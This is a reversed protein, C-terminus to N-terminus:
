RVPTVIAGYGGHVVAVLATAGAPAASHFLTDLAAGPSGNAHGPRGDALSGIAIDAFTIQAAGGGALPPDVVRTGGHSDTFLAFNNTTYLGLLTLHVSHTGDTVTLTGSTNSAAEKFIRTTGTGFAVGRLDIQDQPDPNGFGKIAGTFTASTDLQLTGASVFTVTGSATGGSAVEFLGGRITGGSARGYVREIGGSDVITASAKGGVSVVETGGSLVATRTTGGSLVIQSGGAKVTVGSAVGGSSVIQGGGSRVTGGSATGHVVERGGSAVITGSAKGGASVIETGGSLVAGSAAGGSLVIESGGSVVILRSNGIITGADVLIGADTLTDRPEDRPDGASAWPDIGPDLGPVAM